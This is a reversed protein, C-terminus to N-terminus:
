DNENTENKQKFNLQNFRIQNDGQQGGATGM